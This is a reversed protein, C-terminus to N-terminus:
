TEVDRYAVMEDAEDSLMQHWGPGAWGLGNLLVAAMEWFCLVVLLCSATLWSGTCKSVPDQSHSKSCGTSHQFVTSCTTRISLASVQSGLVVWPWM